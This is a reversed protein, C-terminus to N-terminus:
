QYVLEHIVFVECSVPVFYELLFLLPEDVERLGNVWESYAQNCQLSGGIGGGHVKCTM